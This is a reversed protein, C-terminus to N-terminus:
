LGGLREPECDGRREEELGVFHDASGRGRTGERRSANQLNFRGFGHLLDASVAHRWM